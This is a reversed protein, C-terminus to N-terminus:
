SKEVCDYHPPLNISSIDIPTDELACDYVPPPVIGTKAKCPMLALPELIEYSGNETLIDIKIKHNCEFSDSTYCPHVFMFGAQSTYLDRFNVNIDLDSSELLTATETNSIEKVRDGDVWNYKFEQQLSVQINKITPVSDLELKMHTETGLFVYRPVTLKYNLSSGKYTIMEPCIKKFFNLPLQAEVKGKDTQLVAKLQYRCLVNRTSVSEYSIIELFDFPIVTEGPCITQLKIQKSSRMLRENSYKKSQKDDNTQYFANTLDSVLEIYFNSVTVDKKSKVILDGFVINPRYECFYIDKSPLSISLSVTPSKFLKM